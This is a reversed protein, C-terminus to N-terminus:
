PSFVGRIGSTQSRHVDQIFSRGICASYRVALYVTLLERGFTSNRSATPQLRKSIFALTKWSGDTHQQIVTGAATNSANIILPISAAHDLHILLSIKTSADKVSSSAEKSAETFDSKSSM